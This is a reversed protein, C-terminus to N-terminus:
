TPCIFNVIKIKSKCPSYVGKSIIDIHGNRKIKSGIIRSGDNLRIKPNDFEALNMNKNFIGNEGEFYNNKEDKFVFSSPLIVQEDIKKYIILDSVILKNKQFIKANGRAIINEEEDYSISDAFILIEKADNFNPFVITILILIIKLSSIKISKSM